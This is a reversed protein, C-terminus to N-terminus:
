GDVVPRGRVTPRAQGKAREARFGRDAGVPRGLSGRRGDAGGFILTSDSGFRDPFGLDDSRGLGTLALVERKIVAHPRDPAGKLLLDNLSAKDLMADGLLRKLKANEDELDRLCQADSM